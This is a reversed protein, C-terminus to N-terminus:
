SCGLFVLFFHLLVLFMGPIGPDLNRLAYKIYMKKNSLPATRSTKLSCCFRSQEINKRAVPLCSPPDESFELPFDLAFMQLDHM